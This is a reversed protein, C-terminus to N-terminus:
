FDTIFPIMYKSISIYLRLYYILSLISILFLHYFFKM